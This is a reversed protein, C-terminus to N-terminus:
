QRSEPGPYSDIREVWPEISLQEVLRLVEPNQGFFPQRGYTRNQVKCTQVDGDVTESMREIAPIVIQQAVECAVM